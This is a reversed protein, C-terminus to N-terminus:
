MGCFPCQSSRWSFVLDAKLLAKARTIQAHIKFPGPPGSGKTSVMCSPSIDVFWRKLRNGIFFIHLWKPRCINKRPRGLRCWSKRLRAKGARLFFTLRGQLHDWLAASEFFMWDETGCFRRGTSAVWPPKKAEFRTSQSFYNDLDGCM